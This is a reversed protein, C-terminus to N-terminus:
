TWDHHNVTDCVRGATATSFKSFVGGCVVASAADPVVGESGTRCVMFAFDGHGVPGNRVWNSHQQPATSTEGYLESLAKTHGRYPLIGHHSNQLGSM